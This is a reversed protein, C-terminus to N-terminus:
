GDVDSTEKPKPEPWTWHESDKDINYARRDDPDEEDNVGYWLADGNVSTQNWCVGRWGKEEREELMRRLERAQDPISFAHQRSEQIPGYRKVFEDFASAVSEVHEIPILVNDCTTMLTVTEWPEIKNQRALDFLEKLGNNMMMFFAMGGEDGGLHREALLRWVAM